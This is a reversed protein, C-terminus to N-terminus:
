SNISILNQPNIFVRRIASNIFVRRIASNIFVRRIASNIFVRRIASNIFVRRIAIAGKYSSIKRFNLPRKKGTERIFSKWLSMM